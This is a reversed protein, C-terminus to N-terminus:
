VSAQAKIGPEKQDINHEPSEDQNQIAITWEMENTHLLTNFLSVVFHTDM